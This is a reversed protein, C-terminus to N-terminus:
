FNLIGQLIVAMGINFDLFGYCNSFFAIHKKSSICVKLLWDFCIRGIQTQITRANTHAQEHTHVHTCVRETCFCLTAKCDTMYGSTLQYFILYDTNESGCILHLDTAVRISNWYRSSQSIRYWFFKDSTRGGSVMLSKTGIRNLEM